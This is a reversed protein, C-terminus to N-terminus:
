FQQKFEKTNFDILFYSSLAGIIVSVVLIVTGILHNMNGGGVFIIPLTAVNMLGALNFIKPAFIGCLLGGIGCSLMISLFGRKFRMVIGYMTPETIGGFFSTIFASLAIGKDEKNKLKIFAGLGCGMMVFNYIIATPWIIGDYGISMLSALALNIVPLHMGFLILYPWAMCLLTAGIIRVVLNGSSLYEFVKGIVVGLWNGIPACVGFLIVVMVLLTCTPVILISFMKPSYKEFFKIVYKLIPCVLIMPLFASSYDAVPVNVFYMTFTERVGIMARFDPALLLAGMFIGYLPNVQLSKCATYGLLVPLFYMLANHIMLLLIYLDNDTSLVGILDPGLIIAITKCLGAGIMIPIMSSMTSSVYSLTADWVKKPTLKQKTETKEDEDTKRGTLILFEDYLYGVDQGVIMQFQDGLWKTGLVNPVKRIEEEKILGKDFVNIRLRTACHHVARINETGGVLDLIQKATDKYDKKM